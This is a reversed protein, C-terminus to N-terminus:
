SNGLKALIADSLITGSPLYRGCTPCKVEQAGIQRKIKGKLEFERSTLRTLANQIKTIEKRLNMQEYFVGTEALEEKAADLWGKYKAREAEIAALEAAGDDGGTTM